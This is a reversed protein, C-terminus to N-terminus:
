LILHVWAVNNSRGMAISPLGPLSIGSITTNKMKFVVEYWFSPLRSIELHPDSALLTSNEFMKSSSVVWNNSGDFKPIHYKEFVDKPILKEYSIKLKNQIIEVLEENMDDLYPSYLLKITEKSKENLKLLKIIFKEASEQSQALGIYCALQNVLLSDEVKWEEPKIGLLTFIISNKESLGQNVGKSYSSLFDHADKSLKKTTEISNTSFYRERM